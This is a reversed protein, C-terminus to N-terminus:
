QLHFEGRPGLCKGGPRAKKLAEFVARKAGPAFVNLKRTKDWHRGPIFGLNAAMSLEYSAKVAFGGNAEDTIVAVYQSALRKVIRDALAGLGLQRLGALHGAVEPGDQKLAIAYILKNAAERQEPNIESMGYRARCDPGMGAEVSAADVLPRGCACCQTALMKTAPANEYSM